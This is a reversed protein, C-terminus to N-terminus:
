RPVPVGNIPVTSSPNNLLLYRCSHLFQAGFAPLICGEACIGALAGMALSSLCSFVVMSGLAQDECPNQAIKVQAQCPYRPINSSFRFDSSKQSVVSVRKM